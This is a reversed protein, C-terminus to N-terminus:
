GNFLEELFFIHEFLSKDNNAIHIARQLYIKILGPYLKEFKDKETRDLQLTITTKYPSNPM